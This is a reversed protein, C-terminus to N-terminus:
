KKKRRRTKSAPKEEKGDVAFGALILRAALDEHLTVVGSVTRGAIVRPEKLTVTHM